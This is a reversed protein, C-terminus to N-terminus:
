GMFNVGGARKESVLLSKVCTASGREFKEFHSVGRFKNYTGGRGCAYDLHAEDKVCHLFTCTPAKPHKFYQGPFRFDKKGGGLSFFICVFWHNTEASM